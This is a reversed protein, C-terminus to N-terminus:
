PSRWPELGELVADMSARWLVNFSVAGARVSDVLIYGDGILSSYAERTARRWEGALGPFRRALGSVDRPVAVLVVGPLSGGLDLEPRPPDGRARVVPRAGLAQLRTLAAEDSAIKGRLRLLVRQSSLHWEAKVRDTGLGRNISDRIEGYYDVLYTRSVAGLKALNFRSNLAQLPDFTWKALVMGMEELVIRRQEAKLALGVGRYKSGRSVGTAHSYFYGSPWVPWGYSVGVMRGGSFAGLVLGGNDSLARLLHAPAAERYDEMGWASRQVEVAELFEEPRTLRRVVIGDM